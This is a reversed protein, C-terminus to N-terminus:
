PALHILLKPIQQVRQFSNKIVFTKWGTSYQTKTSFFLYWNCTDLTERNENEPFSVTSPLNVSSYHFLYSLERFLFILYIGSYGLNKSMSIICEHVHMSYTNTSTIPFLWVNECVTRYIVGPNHRSCIRSDLYLHCRCRGGSSWIIRSLRKWVILLWNWTYSWFTLINTVM